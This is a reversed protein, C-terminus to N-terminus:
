KRTSSGLLKQNYEFLTVNIDDIDYHKTEIYYKVIIDSLINPSFAYGAERLFQEAESLDLKMAVALALVTSKGPHYKEDNIIKSFLKADVNARKYVDTKKLKKETIMDSLIQSFSRLEKSFGIFNHREYLFDLLYHRLRDEDQYTVELKDYNYPANKLNAAELFIYKELNEENFKLLKERNIKETIGNSVYVPLEDTCGCIECIGTEKNVTSLINNDVNINHFCVYKKESKRKLVATSYHRMQKNTRMEKKITKEENEQSKKRFLKKM